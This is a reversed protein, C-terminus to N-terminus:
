RAGSEHRDRTNAGTRQSGHLAGRDGRSKTVRVDADLVNQELEEFALRVAICLNGQDGDADLGAVDLAIEFGATPDFSPDRVVRSTDAEQRASPSASATPRPVAREVSRRTLRRQCSPCIAARSKGPPAVRSSTEAASAAVPTVSGLAGIGNGGVRDSAHVRTVNGACSSSATRAAMCRWWGSPCCQPHFMSPSPSAQTSASCPKSSLGIM